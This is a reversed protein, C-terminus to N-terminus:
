QAAGAGKILVHTQKPMLDSFTEVAGGLWTVTVQVPSKGKLPLLVRPDFQSLYGGGSYIWRTLQQDGLMMVIRAGVASARFEGERLDLRIWSAPDLRNRLLSVPDNQHVVILDPDGDDDIDGISGGRGAHPISFYAGGRASVEIFRKGEQNRFLQAPQFYPSGRDAYLVHGNAVFFDLWGDSDFDAFGTGFGVWRRSAGLVGYSDSVNLFSREGVQRLLSNDQATYNVYLIDLQGDGDFDGVDTGMSGEREGNPAFAVGALVAGNTFRLDAGGFYLDNENVDNAVFFDIWGNDDFDAAIVGLGRHKEVIGVTEGVEEFTGDGRNRWLEDRQGDFITPACVDRVLGDIYEQTCVQLQKLDWDCYTAVYIDPWGDRDYDACAAATSWSKSSIGSVATVDSFTGNKQNQFLRCGGFGTMFIDAFGDRNFDGAMAGHSYLGDDFLGASASVDTFRWGGNNRYLAPPRGKIQVPPGSLSGGGTFFLDLDGDRDFDLLAAGGGVTELITYLGAEGGDRYAFGVGSPATVDEFWDEAQTARPTANRTQEAPLPANSYM